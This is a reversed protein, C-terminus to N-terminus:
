LLHEFHRGEAELCLAVRKAEDIIIIKKKKLLIKLDSCVLFDVPSNFRQTAWYFCLFVPSIFKNPLIFIFSACLGPLVTQV